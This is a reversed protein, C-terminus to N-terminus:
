IKDGLIMFQFKRPDAKFSNLRFCKFINKMTCILDERVKLLDKGCSYVTKTM